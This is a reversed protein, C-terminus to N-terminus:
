THLASIGGANFVWFSVYRPLRLHNYTPSRYNLVGKGIEVGGRGSDEPWNNKEAPCIEAVV